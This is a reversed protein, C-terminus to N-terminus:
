VKNVFSDLFRQKEASLFMAGNICHVADDSISYVFSSFLCEFKCSRQREPLIPEPFVCSNDLLLHNQFTSYKQNSSIQKLCNTSSIEWFDLKKAIELCKRYLIKVYFECCKITKSGSIVICYGNISSIQRFNNWFYTITKNFFNELIYTYTNLNKQYIFRCEFLIFWACRVVWRGGEWGVAM